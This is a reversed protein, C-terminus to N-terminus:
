SALPKDVGYALLTDLDIVQLVREDTSRLFVPRAVGAAHAELWRNACLCWRDGAKLGPFDFAPVPSILDNGQERSYLLFDDTVQACVGHVGFDGKPVQCHGDRLYGTMPRTGCVQLDDGLVNRLKEAAGTM